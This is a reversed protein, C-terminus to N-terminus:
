KNKKNRKNKNEVPYFQEYATDPQHDTFRPSSREWFGADIFLDMTKPKIKGLFKGNVVDDYLFIFQESKGNSRCLRSGSKANKMKPYADHLMERIVMQQFKPSMLSFATSNM